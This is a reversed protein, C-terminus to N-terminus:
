KSEWNDKKDSVITIQVGRTCQVCIPSVCYIYNKCNGCCKLSENESQLKTIEAQQSDVVDNLAYVFDMALRNEIYKSYSRMGTLKKLRDKKEQDIDM